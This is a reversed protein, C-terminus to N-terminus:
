RRPPHYDYFELFTNNMNRFTESQFFSKGGYYAGSVIWGWGPVFAIGNFVLDVGYEVTMGNQSIKYGTNALGAVNGLVSVIQLGTSLNATSNIIKEIKIKSFNNNVASNLIQNNSIQFSEVVKEGTKGGVNIYFM